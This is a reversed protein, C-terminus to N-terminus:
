AAGTAAARPEAKGPLADLHFFEIVNEAVMRRKEAEPVGAFNEEVVSMSNPWESEQHPFDTAWIVREVGIHHRNEVGVPDYQFGWYCHQRIYESPLQPLPKLNLLREAWSYHREYRLDAQQLFFPIWGIQTEAFFIRLEPFRDFVGGLIFQIANVGGLRAYRTLQEAFNRGMRRMAEKPERPYHILPGGREGARNFEEHVTIPMRMEAAAAWFTDDEPSPYGRGSPFTGLLVGKLGLRKCHQLEALADDLNTWPIVGLGLLREPAMACYDMALFDNYARVVAKYADDDRISRWLGPGSVGPFM